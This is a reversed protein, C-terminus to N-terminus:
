FTRILLKETVKSERSCKQQQIMNKLSDNVELGLEQKLEEAEAAEKDAQLFSM